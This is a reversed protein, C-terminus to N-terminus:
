EATAQLHLVFSRLRGRDEVHELPQGPEAFESLRNYIQRAAGPHRCPANTSNKFRYRSLLNLMQSFLFASDSRHFHRRVGDDDGNTERDQPQHSAAGTALMWTQTRAFLVFRACAADWVMQALYQIREPSFRKLRRCLDGHSLIKM